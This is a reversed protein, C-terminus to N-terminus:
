LSCSASCIANKNGHIRRLGNPCAMSQEIVGKSGKYAPNLSKKDIGYSPLGYLHVFQANILDGGTTQLDVLALAPHGNVKLQVRSYDLEKTSQTKAKTKGKYNNKAIGPKSNHQLSVVQAASPMTVKSIRKKCERFTHGPAPSRPCKRDRILKM